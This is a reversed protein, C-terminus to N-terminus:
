RWPITAALVLAILVVQGGFRPWYPIATRGFKERHESAYSNAPFVLVLFVTLAIGTILRLLPWPTLLGVAGALEAVGTFAVLFAPSPMGPRRLAPPIMARMGRAVGPVFHTVGMFVFVAALLIRLVLQVVDATTM